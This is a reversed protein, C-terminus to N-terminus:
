RKGYLQKRRAAMYGAFDKAPDPMGTPTQQTGAVPAMVPPAKTAQKKKKVQIEADLRGLALARQVPAQIQSIQELTKPDKCVAYLVDAPNETQLIEAGLEVTVASNIVPDVVQTWDHYTSEGAAM